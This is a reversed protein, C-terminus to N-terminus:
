KVPYLKFSYFTEENKIYIKFIGDSEDYMQYFYKDGKKSLNKRTINNSEIFELEFTAYGTKRYKLKSFTNDEFKEIWFGNEVTVNVISGDYEKYYFKSIIDYKGTQAKTIKIQPQVKLVEWDSKNETQADLIETFRNCNKQLRYFIKDFTAKQVITDKFQSLYPALHYENVMQIKVDNKLDKNKELTKCIEVNLSDIKEFSQSFSNFYILLVFATLISKM